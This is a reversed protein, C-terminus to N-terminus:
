FIIYEHQATKLGLENLVEHYLEQFDESLTLEGSNKEWSEIGNWYGKILGADKGKTEIVAIQHLPLETVLRRIWIKAQNANGLKFYASALGWMAVGVENLMPYRWIATHLPHQNNKYVAGWPYSVLGGIEQSKRKNEIKVLGVWDSDGAVKLAWRIVEGYYQIKKQENGAQEAASAHLLADWMKINYYRPEIIATTPDSMSDPIPETYKKAASWKNLLERAIMTDKEAYPIQRYTEKYDDNLIFPNLRLYPLLPWAAVSSGGAILTKGSKDQVFYYPTEWGQASKTTISGFPAVEIGQGSAYFSMTAKRAPLYYFCELANRLLQEALGKYLRATEQQGNKWFRVANKQLALIVGGTWEISGLPHMGHRVQIVNDDLADSFDILVVRHITGDPLPVTVDVLSKSLMTETLKRLDELPLRDGAPGAMTWSYVDTAFITNKGQSWVGQAITAATPDYVNQAFWGYAKDAAKLWTADKTFSYLMLFASYADMHPETHTRSSSRDGDHVGGNNDQMALLANGLEVACMGYKEPNVTLFAFIIFSQPGPTTMFELMGEGQSLSSVVNISNIVAILPKGSASQPMLVKLIGYINNSDMRQLVTAHPIALRSAIYDLIGESEKQFGAAKLVLADVALDYIFALNKYGPNGIHSPILRTEPMRVDILTQVIRHSLMAEDEASNNQASFAPIFFFALFVFCLFIKTLISKDRFCNM